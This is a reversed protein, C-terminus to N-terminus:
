RFANRFSRPRCVAGQAATLESAVQAGGSFRMAQGRDQLGRPKAIVALALDLQLTFGIDGGRPARHVVGGANQFAKDGEVAFHRDDGGTAKVARDGAEVGALVDV